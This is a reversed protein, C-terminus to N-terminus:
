IPSALRPMSTLPTALKQRPDVALGRGIRIHVHDDSVVALVLGHRHPTSQRRAKHLAHTNLRGSRRPGVQEMASQSLQCAFLDLAERLATGAGERLQDHRVDRVHVHLGACTACTM